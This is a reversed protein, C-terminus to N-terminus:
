AHTATTFATLTELKFLQQLTAGLDFEPYAAAAADVAANLTLGNTFQQLLTYTEAPLERVEIHDHRRILLVRSPGADLNIVIESANTGPQNAQWIAFLPYRSEVLRLAACPIFILREYDNAAVANLSAPDLPLNDAAILVEQYAWELEAVDAFYDYATAAYEERLFAPYHQGIYQQDGSTSPFRQQYRQASHAFWQKDGLREIVPYTAKLTGLFGTQNNHRYIQMRHEAAMGNYRLLEVMTEARGSLVAHYFARQIERLTRM